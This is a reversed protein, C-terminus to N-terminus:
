HNAYFIDKKDAGGIKLLTKDDEGNNKNCSSTMILLLVISCQLVIRFLNQVKM